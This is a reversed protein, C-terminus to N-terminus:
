HGDLGFGVRCCGSEHGPAVGNQARTDRGFGQPSRRDSGDMFSRRFEDGTRIEAANKLDFRGFREPLSQWFERATTAL